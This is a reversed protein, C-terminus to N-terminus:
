INFLLISVPLSINIMMMMIYMNTEKMFMMWKQLHCQYLNMFNMMRMYYAMTITSMLLMIMLIALDKTLVTNQIVMWKPFFGILPPMGSLSMMMITLSMKNMLNMSFTKMQNIHLINNNEMMLCLMIMMIMYVLIYMLWLKKNILSLMVIWSMHNISSYSIIKRTSTQNIGGIAGIISTMIVIMLSITSYEIIKNIIYLPAVKQWTTLILCLKMSMLNMIEPFWLHFPPIGVKISMSVLMIYKMMNMDWKMIMISFMMIMSGMSQIIFYMMISQSSNKKKKESMIPIFSMLNMEMGMWMNIWNTSNLVTITSLMMIMFAMIKTSNKM